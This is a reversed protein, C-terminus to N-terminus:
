LHLLGIQLLGFLLTSGEFELTLETAPHVKGVLKLTGLVKTGHSTCFPVVHPAGFSHPKEVWVLALHLLHSGRGVVAM